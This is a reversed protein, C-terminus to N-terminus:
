VYTGYTAGNRTVSALRNRRNYTYVFTEAGPRVEQTINGANDYTYTRL